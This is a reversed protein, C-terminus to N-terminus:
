NNLAGNAIWDRIAQIEEASLPDQGFPMRQGVMGPGGEIKIMLYSRDPDGPEVRDLNTVEGSPVNVLNGFSKGESLDLGFPAASGVHCGSLACRQDFINGQISSLKAEVQTADTPTSRECGILFLLLVASVVAAKLNTM